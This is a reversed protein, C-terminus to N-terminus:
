IYLHLEYSPSLLTDELCVIKQKPEFRFLDFRPRNRNQQPRKQSVLFFNPNTETNRFRKPVFWIFFNANRFLGYRFILLSKHLPCPRPLHCPCPRPCPCPCPCPRSCSMSKFMSISVSVSM